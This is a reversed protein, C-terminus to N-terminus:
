EQDGQRAWNERANIHEIGTALKHKVRSRRLYYAQAGILTKSNSLWKHSVRPSLLGSDSVVLLLGGDSKDMVLGLYM